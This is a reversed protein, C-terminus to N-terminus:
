DQMTRGVNADRVESWRLGDGLMTEAVSWFTDREGTTYSPGAATTSAHASDIVPVETVAVPPAAIAPEMVVVPALPAAVVTATQGFSSIVLTATTVLRSAAAQIGPLLRARNVVNGRAIALTEAILAYAVQVWCLWAIVGLTGALLRESRTTESTLPDSFAEVIPSGPAGGLRYLLWPVGAILLLIVSIALLGKALDTLRRIM